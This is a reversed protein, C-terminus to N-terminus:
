RSLSETPQSVRFESDAGLLVKKLFVMVRAMWLMVPWETFFRGDREAIQRGAQLRVLRADVIMKSNYRELIEPLTLGRDGAALLEILLRVRRASEGVNYFGFVYCYVLSLYTLAWLVAHGVLDMVSTAQTAFSAVFWGVSLCGLAFAASGSKM